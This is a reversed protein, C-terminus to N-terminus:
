SREFLIGDRSTYHTDIYETYICVDVEKKGGCVNGPIEVEVRGFKYIWLYSHSTICQTM